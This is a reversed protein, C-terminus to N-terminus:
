VEGRLHLEEMEAEFGTNYPDKKIFKLERRKSPQLEEKNSYIFDTHNTQNTYKKWIEVVIKMRLAHPYNATPSNCYLDCYEVAQKQFDSAQSELWENAEKFDERYSRTKLTPRSTTPKNHLSVPPLDKNNKKTLTHVSRAVKVSDMTGSQCKGNHWKTVIPHFYNLCWHSTRDYGKRYTFVIEDKVLRKFVRKLTRVSMFPLQEHWQEYTNYIYVRGEISRGFGKETWYHIQQLVVAAKIGIERAVEKDFCLM